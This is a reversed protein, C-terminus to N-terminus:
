DAGVFYGGRVQNAELWDVNLSEGGSTVTAGNKIGVVLSGLNAGALTILATFPVQPTAAVRAVQGDVRFTVTSGTTLTDFIDFSLRTYTSIGAPITTLCTIATGGNIQAIVSWFLSGTTKYFGIVTGTTRIGASLATILAGASVGSAIGVFVGAQNTNVESYQVMAECHIPEGTTPVFVQNPSYIYAEDSAAPTGGSATLTMIGNQGDNVVANGGNSFYTSWNGIASLDEYGIQLIMRPVTGTGNAVTLYIGTGAAVDQFTLAGLSTYVHTAPFAVTGYVATAIANTVGNSLTITAPQGTSIGSASGDPFFAASLIRIARDFVAIATIAQQSAALTAQVYEIQERPPSVRLFDDFIVADNIQALEFPLRAIMAM